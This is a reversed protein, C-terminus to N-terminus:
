RKLNIRFYGMRGVLSDEVGRDSEVEERWYYDRIFM